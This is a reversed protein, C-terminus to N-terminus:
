GYPLHVQLPKNTACYMVICTPCRLYFITAAMERIHGVDVQKANGCGCFRWTLLRAAWRSVVAELCLGKGFFCGMCVRGSLVSVESFIVVFRFSYGCVLHM